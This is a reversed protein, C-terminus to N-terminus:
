RMLISCEEIEWTRDDQNYKSFDDHFGSRNMLMGQRAKCIAQSKLWQEGKAASGIWCKNAAQQYLIKTTGFLNRLAKGSLIKNRRKVILSSCCIAELILLFLFTSSWEKLVTTGFEVDPLICKGDGERRPM